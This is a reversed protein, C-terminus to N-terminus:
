NYACVTAHAAKLDAEIRERNKEDSEKLLCVVNAANQKVCKGKRHKKLEGLISDTQGICVFAHHAKGSKDTKRKTIVYIASTEEIEAALPFVEFSYLSKKGRFIAESIKPSKKRTQKEQKM